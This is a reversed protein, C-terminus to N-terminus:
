LDVRLPRVAGAFDPEIRCLLAHIEVGAAKAARLAAGFAPDTEDNPRLVGAAPNQVMFLVHAHGGALAMHTLETLHKVGRQTPADPFYAIGQRVLTSCKVEIYHEEGGRTVKLDFRSDGRVVERRLALGAELGDLMGARVAQAALDNTLQADIMVWGGDHEVMILRSATKGPGVRPRVFARVGPVLLEKLRGSNPVHAMEQQGDRVVWAAFRNIRTLFVASQLGKLEM